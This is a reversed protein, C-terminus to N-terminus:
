QDEQLVKVPNTAALQLFQRCINEIRYQEPNEIKMRRRYDGSLFEAVMARDLSGTKVSIVPLNLLLYDILKSPTQRTGANEFNVLFDMHWLEQLLEERPVPDHVVIRRETKELGNVLHPTRTYIHFRFDRDLSKLYGIFEGPDRRGPIFVGAYAFTPISNTRRTEPFHYDELRFGQPIVRIKPHFEPFYADIAGQVPVSIYDAKRMFWKEVQAFYFPVRFTDNEQGVYPDGCDAVWTDAVNGSASRAAAVGWHVPYPIAISILLDFHPEKGLAKRVMRYLEIDPYEFLLGLSRWLLRRTLRNIGKGKVRVPRWRRKGLDAVVLKYKEEFPGHVKEDRHTLVKVEHGQRAFEKALETARFARPSNQPYFSASVIAVKL